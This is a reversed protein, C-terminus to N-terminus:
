IQIRGHKDHDITDIVSQVIWENMGIEKGMASTMLLMVEDIYIKEDGDQDLM